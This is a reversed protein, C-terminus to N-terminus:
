ATKTATEVPHELPDNLMEELDRMVDEESVFEATGNDVQACRRKIEAEFEPTGDELVGEPIPLSALMTTAIRIRDKEPLLLLREELRDLTPSM